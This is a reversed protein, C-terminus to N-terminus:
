GGEWGDNKVRTVRNSLDYLSVKKKLPPPPLSPSFGYSGPLFFSAKAVM